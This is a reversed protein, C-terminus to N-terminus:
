DSHSISEPPAHSVDQIAYGAKLQLFPLWFFSVASFLLAMAPVGTQRVVFSLGSMKKGIWTTDPIERALGYLTRSSVYLSTNSASLVSFILFGNIVGALVHHGAAWVANVALNTSNPPTLIKANTSSTSGGYIM